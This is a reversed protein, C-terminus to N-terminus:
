SDHQGLLPVTDGADPLGASFKVPFRVAMTAENALERIMGRERVHPDDFLEHADLLPSVPLDFSTLTDLWEALTRQLFIGTLLANVERKFQQRGLRSAFRDDTLAPYDAGLAECLNLWFKNEMIGLALHRGDRTPFIDNEPMVNPSALPRDAYARSTWAASATWALVCDHISVDLHQGRGNQRASMVAVALALAAHSSAAYDALRVRPRTVRDDVQVPISWFGGLALYNLDHGPRAAYPGTQGFGSISCMVIRPNVEALTAYDLGFRKMVGPRFGEVVADAGRVLELMAAKGAPSKLDLAVSRKGRNLQAFIERGLQRAPDGAGPPEVKVVDAGLHMLMSTAHPGPLLQSLDVVRVGNLCSWEPKIPTTEEELGGTNTRM